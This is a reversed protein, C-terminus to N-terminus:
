CGCLSTFWSYNSHNSVTQINVLSVPDSESEFIAMSVLYAIKKNFLKFIKGYSPQFATLTLLYASGYWSVDDM